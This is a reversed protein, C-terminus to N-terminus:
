LFLKNYLFRGTFNLLYSWYFSEKHFQEIEVVHNEDLEKRLSKKGKSNRDSILSELMTRVM